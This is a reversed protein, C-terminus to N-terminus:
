TSAIARVTWIWLPPFSTLCRAAALVIWDPYREVFDGLAAEGELVRAQDILTGVGFKSLVIDPGVM